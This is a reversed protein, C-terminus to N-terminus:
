SRGNEFRLLASIFVTTYVLSPYNAFSGNLQALDKTRDVQYPDNINYFGQDPDKVRLACLVPQSDPDQSRLLSPIEPDMAHQTKYRLRELYM